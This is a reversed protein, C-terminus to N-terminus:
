ALARIVSAIVMVTCEEEERKVNIKELNTVSRHYLQQGPHAVVVGAEGAYSEVGQQRVDHGPVRDLDEYM